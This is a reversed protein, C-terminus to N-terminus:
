KARLLAGIASKKQIEARGFACYSQPDDEPGYKKLLEMGKKRMREKEAPSKVYARIEDHGYGLDRARWYLKELQLLGKFRRATITPCQEGIVYAVVIAFLPNEIEPVDRLSPRATTATAPSVALIAATVLVIVAHKM